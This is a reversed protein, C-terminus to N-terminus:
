RLNFDSIAMVCALLERQTLNDAPRYNNGEKAGVFGLYSSVGVSFRYEPRIKGADEYEPQVIMLEEYPIGCSLLAIRGMEDRAVPEESNEPAGQAKLEQWIPEEELSWFRTLMERCQRRTVPADPEPMEMDAYGRSIAARATKDEVAACETEDLIRYVMSTSENGSADRASLMLYRGGMEPTINLERGTGAVQMARDSGGRDDGDHGNGARRDGAREDGGGKDGGRECSLMWRFSMDETSQGPLEGAARVTEGVAFDGEARIDMPRPYTHGNLTVNELVPNEWNRVRIECGVNQIDVDALELGRIPSQEFADMFIGYVGGDGKFDEIRINKYEPFYNGMWGEDYLMTAHISVYRINSAQSRRIYINEVVGGRAANSKFRIAYDLSRAGFVNGDAYINRIDGSMESGFAIGSAGSVFENDRIVMNQAPMGLEKLEWGDRNRGSKVAIGDGGVNFRCQEILVYSCNEPNCGDNNNFEGSVEVSRVTVNTCLVPNVGWMPSNEISIGEILVNDCGIVQIFNPRLFHGEGFIRKKVDVGDDTMRRLIGVDSSLPRVYDQGANEDGYWSWWTDRDAQGDLRGEGTIAINDQEYAYILPSWNYCPAGEYYALVLPYNEEVIERTFRLVTDKSELHLNVNAKLTIAGTDYTGPPVLVTGGGMASVRDIADQIAKTDLIGDDAVAGCDTVDVCQEPFAPVNIQALIHEAADWSLSQRDAAAAGAGPMIESKSASSTGAGRRTDTGGADEAGHGTGTGYGAERSQERDTEPHRDQLSSQPTCAGLFLAAAAIWIGTRKKRM